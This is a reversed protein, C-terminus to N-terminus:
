RISAHLHQLVEQYVPTNVKSQIFCLPGVVAPSVAGQVMVSQLGKVSSSLCGVNQAERSKRWDRPGQNEFSLFIQSSNM